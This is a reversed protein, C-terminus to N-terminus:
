ITSPNPSYTELILYNAPNADANLVAKNEYIWQIGIGMEFQYDRDQTIRKPKQAWARLAFNKGFVLVKGVNNLTILAGASHTAATTGGTGRTLTASTRDGHAAAYTMQEEDILMTNTGTTPFYKWYNVNTVATTPGATATTAAATIAAALRAEPRLFTGTMGDGPNVSSWRWIMTGKYMDISGSISTNADGRVQALRVDQKFDADDVLNYYDIESMLAGFVPMPLMGGRLTRFERVGRRQAGIVSRQLAKPILLDGPGLNARSTADGAFITVATVTEQNLVQDIMDDDHFRALWDAIKRAATTPFDFLAEATAIANAATSHRFLEVTVNYSGVAINEEAGELTTAGSVGKGILRQLSGFTIKDGKQKTLDMKELVPADSGDPGTWKSVISMRDSEDYVAKDWYEPILADWTTKTALNLTVGRENSLSLFLRKLFELM